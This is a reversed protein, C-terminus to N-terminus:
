PMEHNLGIGYRRGDALGQRIRLNLNFVEGSATIVQLDGHNRLAKTIECPDFLMLEDISGKTLLEGALGNVGQSKGGRAGRLTEM